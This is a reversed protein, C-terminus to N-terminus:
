IENRTVFIGDLMKETTVGNPLRGPSIIELRNDYIALEVGRLAFLYDRHILANVIAERVAEEPYTSRDVRYGTSGITAKM